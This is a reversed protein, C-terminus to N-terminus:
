RFSSLSAKGSAANVTLDRLSVSVNLTVTYAGANTIVVSDGAAPLAGGSAQLVGPRLDNAQQAFWVPEHAEGAELPAADIAEDPAEAVFYGSTGRSLVLGDAVLRDYASVVTNPSVQWQAALQRISMLRAGPLLRHEIIMARIRIDIQESLPVPSNRDLSFM